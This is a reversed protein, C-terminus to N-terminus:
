MGKKEIVFGKTHTYTDTNFNENKKNSKWSNLFPEKNLKFLQTQTIQNKFNILNEIKGVLLQLQTLIIFKKHTCQYHNDFSFLMAQLKLLQM